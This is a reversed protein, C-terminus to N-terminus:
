EGILQEEEIYWEYFDIFKRYEIELKKIRKEALAKSSFVGIVKTLNNPVRYQMVIFVEM